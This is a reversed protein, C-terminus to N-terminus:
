KTQGGKASPTGISTWDNKIHGSSTTQIMSVSSTLVATASAMRLEGRKTHVWGVRVNVVGGEVGIGINM